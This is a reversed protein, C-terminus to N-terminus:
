DKFPCYRNMRTSLGREERRNFKRIQM